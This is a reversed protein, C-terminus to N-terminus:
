KKHKDKGKHRKKKKKRHEKDDEDEDDDSAEDREDEALAEHVNAEHEAAELVERERQRKYDEWADFLLHLWPMVQEISPLQGPPGPEGRPGAEGKVGPKGQPGVEGRKGQPGPKGQPGLKGRPGEPRAKRSPGATGATGARRPARPRGAGGNTGSSHREGSREGPSESSIRLLPDIIAAIARQGQASKILM